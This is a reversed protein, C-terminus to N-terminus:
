IFWVFTNEEIKIKNKKNYFSVRKNMTNLRISYAKEKKEKSSLIIKKNKVHIFTFGEKTSIKIKFLFCLFFLLNIFITKNQIFPSCEYFSPTDRKIDYFMNEKKYPQSFETTKHIQIYKKLFENALNLNQFSETSGGVDPHRRKALYKYQKDLEELSSMQVFNFEKLAAQLNM